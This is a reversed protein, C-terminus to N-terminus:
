IKVQLILAGRIPNRKKLKAHGIEANAGTQRRKDNTRKCDDTASAGAETSDSICVASFIRYSRTRRRLRIVELFDKRVFRQEEERKNGAINSYNGM